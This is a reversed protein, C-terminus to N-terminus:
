ALLGSIQEIKTSLEVVQIASFINYESAVLIATTVEKLRRKAVKQAVEQEARTEAYEYDRVDLRADATQQKIVAIIRQEDRPLTQIDFASLLSKIYTQLQTM